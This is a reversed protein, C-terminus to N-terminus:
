LKWGKKVDYTIQRLEKPSKELKSYLLTEILETFGFAIL